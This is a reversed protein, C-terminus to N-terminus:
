RSYEVVLGKGFIFSNQNSTLIKERSTVNAGDASLKTLFYFTDKTKHKEVSWVAKTIKLANVVDKEYELTGDANLTMKMNMSNQFGFPYESSKDQGRVTAKQFSWSGTLLNQMEEVTTPQNFEEENTEESVTNSQDSDDVGKENDFNSSVEMESDSNDKEASDSPNCSVM